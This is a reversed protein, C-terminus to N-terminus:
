NRLSTPPPYLPRPRRAMSLNRDTMDNYVRIWTRAGPPIHIAPGPSTGNVVVDERIECASPVKAITVRLVHDPCFDDDHVTGALALAPLWSALALLVAHMRM